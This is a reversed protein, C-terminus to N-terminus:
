VKLRLQNPYGCGGGKKGQREKGVFHYNPINVLKNTEKRLWTECLLVVDVKNTSGNSLLKCLASQKSLLGRINLQMIVLSCDSKTESLFSETEIYDCNQIADLDLDLTKVATLTYKDPNNGRLTTINGKCM